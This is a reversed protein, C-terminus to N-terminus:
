SESTYSRYAKKNLLIFFLISIILIGTAPIDSYVHHASFVSQNGGLLVFPAWYYPHSIFKNETQLFQLKMEHLSEGTALGAALNEYLSSMFDATKGDDTKWLSMVVAPCGAYMFGRAMSYVGEGPYRKGAGTECASLVALRARLNLNYLEYAHLRGDELTDTQNQSFILANGLHNDRDATGHLAVHLVDYVPALKKFAQETATQGQLFTGNTVAAIAGLERHAGPLGAFTTDVIPNDGSSYSLGLVRTAGTSLPKESTMLLGATYTYSVQFQRLLYPLRQYNIRTAVPKRTLLAEFPVAQLPGDPIIILRGPLPIANNMVNQKVLVPQVLNQYLLQAAETFCTYSHQQQPLNVFDPHQTVQQMFVDIQPQMVDPNNLKIFKVGTAAIRLVYIARKGWFYEVLQANQQRAYTQLTALTVSVAKGYRTQYYQPHHQALWSRVKEQQRSLRSLYRQTNRLQQEDPQPKKQENALQDENYALDIRLQREVQRISDPLGTRQEVELQYLTETLLRAKNKEMLTLAIQCYPLSDAVTALQWACEIAEEFFNQSKQAFLLKSGERDFLTRNKDLLSDALQYCNMAFKLDSLQKTTTYREKFASAKLMLWESLFYVDTIQHVAPNVGIDAVNFQDTSAIIARQYYILASDTQQMQQFVTGIKRYVSAVERHKNGYYRARLRLCQQYHNVSATLNQLKDYAGGLLFYGNSVNGLDNNQNLNILLAQKYFNIAKSISDLQEYAFGINNYYRALRTSETTIQNSLDIAQWYYSIAQKYENKGCYVNGIVNQCMEKLLINNKATSLAQQGYVLAKDFDGKLWNVVALNYYSQALKVSDTQPLQEQISLVQQYYNEGQLYDLRLQAHVDGIDQYSDAVPLSSEGFLEWRIRLAEQHSIIASDANGAHQYCRGLLEYTHSLYYHNNGLHRRVVPLLKKLHPFSQNYRLQENYTRIAQNMTWVYGAWNTDREFQGAARQYYVAASDYQGADYLSDPLHLYAHQFPKLLSDNRATQKATAMTDPMSVTRAAVPLRTPQAFRVLFVAAVAIALVVCTLTIRNM